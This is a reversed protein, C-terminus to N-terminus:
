KLLDDLEGRIDLEHLDDSGGIHKGNIFIQPVTRRQSRSVMEDRSADDEDVRVEEYSVGKRTLLEKARDCYPCNTTTYVLIESV